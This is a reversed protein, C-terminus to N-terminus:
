NDQKENHEECVKQCEEQTHYVNKLSHSNSDNKYKVWIETENCKNDNWEKFTIQSIVGEVACGEYWSKTKHGDCKPCKVTEQKNDILAIVKGTCNCKKCPISKYNGKQIWCIDGVAFGGYILRRVESQAEKIIKDRNKELDKEKVAIAVVKSQLESNRKKLDVNETRLTEIEHKVTNLLVEKMKEKYEDIIEDAVSPEYYGCDDEYYGM